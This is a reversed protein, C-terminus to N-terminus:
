GERESYTLKFAKAVGYNQGVYLLDLNKGVAMDSPELELHYLSLLQSQCQGDISLVHVAKNKWDNLFISTEGDYSLKSFTLDIQQHDTKPVTVERWTANDYSRKGDITYVRLHYNIGNHALVWFVERYGNNM